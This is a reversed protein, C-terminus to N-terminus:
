FAEDSAEGLQPSFTLWQRNFIASIKLEVDEIRGLRTSKSGTILFLVYLLAKINM